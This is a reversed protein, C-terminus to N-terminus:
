FEIVIEKWNVSIKKLCGMGWLNLLSASMHGRLGKVRALWVIYENLRFLNSVLVSFQTGPASNERWVERGVNGRSSGRFRGRWRTRLPSCIWIVLVPQGHMAFSSIELMMQSRSKSDDGNMLDVAHRESPEPNRRSSSRSRDFWRFPNPPSIFICSHKKLPNAVQRAAPALDGKVM